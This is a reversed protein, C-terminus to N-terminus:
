KLRLCFRSEVLNFGFREITKPEGEEVFGNKQYFAIARTNTSLVWLKVVQREASQLPAVVRAMLQASVGSGWYNKLLYMTWLESEGKVDTEGFSSIGVIRGEDEVVLVHMGSEFVREWMRFRSEATLGDLYENPVQGRYAEQWSQVHVRAIEAVDEALGERIRIGATGM